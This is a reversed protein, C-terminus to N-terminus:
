LTFALYLQTAAVEDESELVCVNLQPGGLRRCLPYQTEKGPTFHDPHSM